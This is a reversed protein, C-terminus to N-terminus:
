TGSAARGGVVVDLAGLIGPQAECVKPIANVVRAATATSGPLDGGNLAFDVQVPPNGDVAIRTLRRTASDVPIVPQWDDITNDPMSWISSFCLRPEDNVIGDFSMRISAITGTPIEGAGFSYDRDAVAVDRSERIDDLTLGVGDAILRLSPAFHGIMAGPPYVEADQNPTRGFGLAAFFGPVRYAGCPIREAITIMTPQESMSAVHVALVDSAFGPAIGTAFLTSKGQHGASELKTRSADDLSPPHFLPHYAPTVVNKGSALISCLQDVIDDPDRGSITAFYTVCDADLALFEALDATALVGTASEGALEGSDRGANDPSHVLHGVLQLDPSRLIQQLAIRGTYGTGIHAIRLQRAM